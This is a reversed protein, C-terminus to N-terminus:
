LAGDSMTATVDIFRNSADLRCKFINVGDNAKTVTVAITTSGDAALVRDRATVYQPDTRYMFAVQDQCFAVQKDPSITSTGPANVIPTSEDFTGDITTTGETAVTPAPSTAGATAVGLNKSSDGSATCGALVVAALAFATATKM